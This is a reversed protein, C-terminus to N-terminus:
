VPKKWKIHGNINFEDYVSLIRKCFEYTHDDNLSKAKNLMDIFQRKMSERRGYNKKRNNCPVCVTQGNDITAKGKKSLARKHDVALEVGDEAKAGCIQCTFKDREMIEKKQTATFHHLTKSVVKDPDYQYVGQKIKQLFGSAHLKRTARQPDHFIKGTRKQYEEQCWATVKAQEVEEYQMEKFFERVLGEQTVKEKM